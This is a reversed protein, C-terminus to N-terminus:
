PTRAGILVAGTPRIRIERVGPPLRVPLARADARGLARSLLSEVADRPIPIGRVAVREVTWQGRGPATVRVPGSASVPERDRLAVTLPGLLDRPLRGTALKGSVEIREDLLRVQLSDLQSRVTADLGEGVLAATQAADLVVSDARGRAVSDAKARAAVLARASPRGTAGADPRAARGIVDVVRDRYLWAGILLVILALCGVARFPALLCGM